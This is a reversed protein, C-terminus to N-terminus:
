AEAKAAAKADAKEKAAAAKKDRREEALGVSKQFKAFLADSAGAKKLASRGADVSAKTFGKEEAAGVLTSVFRADHGPLFKGGKTTGNCGCVCTGTKPASEKKATAKKDETIKAMTRAERIRALLPDSDQRAMVVAACDSTDICSWTSPDVEDKNRNGCETCKAPHDTRLVTCVEHPCKCLWAVGGPYHQHNRKVTGIVCKAHNGTNCFGCTSSVKTLAM